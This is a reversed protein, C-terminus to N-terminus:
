FCLFLFANARHMNWIRMCKCVQFVAIAFSVYIWRKQRRALLMRKDGSLVHQGVMGSSDRKRGCVVWGEVCVRMRVGKGNWM